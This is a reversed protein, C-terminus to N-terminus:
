KPNAQDSGNRQRSFIARLLQRFERDILLMAFFYTLAGIGVLIIPYAVFQYFSGTYQVNPLYLFLVIGMVGAGVLCKVTTKVPVTFKMIRKSFWFKLLVFPLKVSVLIAAWIITLEGLGLTPNSIFIPLMIFLALLYAGAQLFNLSPLKFLRSNVLDKFTTKGKDVEATGMLISDSIGSLLDLFASFALIRITTSVFSYFYKDSFLFLIPEVIILVGILMPVAFLLTLKLVTEIDAAKGGRLLKPMLAQTLGTSVSVLTAVTVAVQFYSMLLGGAASGVLTVVM